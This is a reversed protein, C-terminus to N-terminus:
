PQTVETFVKEPDFVTLSQMIIIHRIVMNTNYHVNNFLICAITRDFNFNFLSTGSTPTLALEEESHTASIFM